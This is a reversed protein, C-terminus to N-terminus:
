RAQALKERLCQRHGALDGAIQYRNCAMGITVAIDSPVGDLTVPDSSAAITLQTEKCQRFGAVDGDIQYRKCAMSITVEDASSLRARAPPPDPTQRQARNANKAALYEAETAPRAGEARAAQLDSTQILSITGDQDRIAVKGEYPSFMAEASPSSTASGKSSGSWKLSAWLALLSFLLVIVGTAPSIGSSMRPPERTNNDRQATPTPSRRDRAPPASPEQQAGPAERNSRTSAAQEPEVGRRADQEHAKSQAEATVQADYAARKERDILVAYAENVRRTRESASADGPNRDPHYRKVLSRYAGQIVESSARASVELEDYLTMKGRGLTVSASATRAGAFDLVTADVRDSADLWEAEAQPFGDSGIHSPARDPVRRLKDFRSVRARVSKGAVAPVPNEPRRSDIRRGEFVPRGSLMTPPGLAWGDHGLQENYLSLLAQVEKPDARVVPHITEALFRVFLDDSCWQLDFRADGFSGGPDWDDNRVRHQQIDDLANGFRHDESPVKELDYIRALFEHERLRGAWPIASSTIGTSSM